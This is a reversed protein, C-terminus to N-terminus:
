TFSLLFKDRPAQETEEDWNISLVKQIAKILLPFTGPKCVYYDAGQQYVRNIAEPQSSTSFIVVPIERLSTSSRIEKLCEFGNKRPINLDLFIVAPAPNTQEKLLKMLEQGDSAMTLSASSSVEKLADEFLLCDDQDDEALFINLTQVAM